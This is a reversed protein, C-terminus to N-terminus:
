DDIVERTYLPYIGTFLFSNTSKLPRARRIYRRHPPLIPEVATTTIARGRKSLFTQRPSLPARRGPLLGFGIVPQNSM